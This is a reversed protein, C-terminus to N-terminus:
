INHHDDDRSSPRTPRTAHTVHSSFTQVKTASGTFFIVSLLVLDPHSSVISILGLFDPTIIHVSNTQTRNSAAAPHQSRPLSGETATFLLSNRQQRFLGYSKLFTETGHTLQAPLTTGLSRAHACLYRLETSTFIATTEYTVDRLRSSTWRRKLHAQRAVTARIISPALM